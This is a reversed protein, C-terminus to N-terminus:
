VAPLDELLHYRVALSAAELRSHAGLKTLLSQVHTRVTAPSVDLRVAMRVTDLGDVLLRLCQRERATLYGALRRMTDERTALRSGVAKPVDVVVEGRLIRRIAETLATISRTKHVFGSAGARLAEVAGDTCPDASLVLVKTGPSAATVQRITDPGDNRSIHRNILCVDPRHCAVAPVIDAMNCAVNVAFSQQGLTVSLADLFVQHDDGIVVSPEIARDHFKQPRASCQKGSSVM